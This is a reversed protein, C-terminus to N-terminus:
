QLAATYTVTTSCSYHSGQYNFEDALAITGNVSTASTFQGTVKWTESTFEINGDTESGSWSNQALFSGDGAIPITLDTWSISGSLTGGGGCNESLDNARFGSITRDGGATFFVFNGEQTAGKYSGASAATATDDNVITGTADSNALTANNPESLSVTFTEDPEVVTDGVITVGITQTTVGPKFTLDGSAAVYDSPATAVSDDTEYSVSVTQSSAHSLSV